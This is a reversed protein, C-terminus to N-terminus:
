KFLRIELILPLPLAKIRLDLLLFIGVDSGVHFRLKLSLLKLFFGDLRPYDTSIQCIYGRDEWASVEMGRLRLLLGLVMLLM